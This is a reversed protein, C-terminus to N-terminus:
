VSRKKHFLYLKSVAKSVVIINPMKQRRHYMQYLRRKPLQDESSHSDNCQCFKSVSEVNSAPTPISDQIKQIGIKL